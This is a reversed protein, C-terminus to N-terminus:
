HAAVKEKHGVSVPLPMSLKLNLWQNLSIGQEAAEKALLRHLYEPMRLNLKGSFRRKSIPEPIPENSEVLDELVLQVVKTIELLADIHTNAHAALSEFETVRGIYAEDEESWTVCYTYDEPKYSLKPQNTPQSM